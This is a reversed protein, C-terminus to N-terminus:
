TMLGRQNNLCRNRMVVDGLEIHDPYWYGAGGLPTTGYQVHLKNAIAFEVERYAEESM